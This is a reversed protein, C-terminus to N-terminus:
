AAAPAIAGALVVLGFGIVILNGLLMTPQRLRHGAGRGLLAGFAALVVQWSLSAVFAAAAFVLREALGGLFPLGVALAAFYVVTAPNLLTLGLMELYTRGHVSHARVSRGSTVQHRARWAVYLGRVGIGVLVIGGAVRLPGIWPGVVAAIGYGVLVALTAYIADASAAGAAAAL